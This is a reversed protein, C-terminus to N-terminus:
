LGAKAVAADIRAALNILDSKTDCCENVCWSRWEEAIRQGVSPEVTRCDRITAKYQEVAEARQANIVANAMRSLLSNSSQDSLLKYESDFFEDALKEGATRVKVAPAPDPRMRSLLEKWFTDPLYEKRPLTRAARVMEENGMTKVDTM